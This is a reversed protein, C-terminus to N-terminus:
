TGPVAHQATIQAWFINALEAYGKSSPHFGDQPSVFDPHNALDTGYLNVLVDGYKAVAADIVSNWQLVLAHVLAAPQGAVCAGGGQAGQQYYPLLSFDPANAVFVRAQAQNHLTRLLTDLDAGYQSLPVCDRFDNGVLWVTILTPHYAAVQPLEQQLAAHLTIGSVGLNFYQSYHPLRSILIPVYGQTNPNDAGVGVADSAGLAVYVAPPHVTSTPTAHIVAAPAADGGSCAALALIATLLALMGVRSRTHSPQCRRERRAMHSRAPPSPSHLSM